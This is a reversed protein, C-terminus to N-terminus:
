PSLSIAEGLAVGGEDGIKCYSLSLYQLCSNVIVQTFFSIEHVEFINYDLTLHNIKYYDVLMKFLSFAGAEQLKTESLNLKQLQCKDGRM